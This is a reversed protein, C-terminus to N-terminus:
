DHATRLAKSRIAEAFRHVVHVSTFLYLGTFDGACAEFTVLGGESCRAALGAVGEPPLHMGVGALVNGLQGAPLPRGEGAFHAFLKRAGEADM